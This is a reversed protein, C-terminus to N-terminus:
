ADGMKRRLMVVEHKTVFAPLVRKADESGDDNSGTEGSIEWADMLDRVKAGDWGGTANSWFVRKIGVAHMHTICRYCPRSVRTPRQSLPPPEARTTSSHERPLFKLEDYLSGTAAPAVVKELQDQTVDIETKPLRPSKDHCTNGLRAVYLDAGKLRLDKTRAALNAKSTSQGTLGKPILLPQSPAPDLPKSTAPKKWDRHHLTNTEPIDYSSEPLDDDSTRNSHPGCITKATPPQSGRKHRNQTAQRDKHSHKWKKGMQHKEGDKQKNAAVNTPKEEKSNLENDNLVVQNLHIPNLVRSKFVSSPPSPAALADRDQPRRQWPVSLRLTPKSGEYVSKENLIVRYNLARNKCDNRVGLLPKRQNPALLSPCLM